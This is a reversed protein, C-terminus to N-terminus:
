CSSDASSCPALLKNCEAGSATSNGKTAENIILFHLFLVKFVDAVACGGTHHGDGCSPGGRIRTAADVAKLVGHFDLLEMGRERSVSAAIHNYWSIAGNGRLRDFWRRDTGQKYSVAASSKAVYDCGERFSFEPTTARWVLTKGYQAAIDVFENLQTEYDSSFSASVADHLGANMVIVDAAGFTSLENELRLRGEGRLVSALGGGNGCIRAAGVWIFSFRVPFDDILSGNFFRNDNYLDGGCHIPQRQVNYGFAATVWSFLEMMTSDGIFM